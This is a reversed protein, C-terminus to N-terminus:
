RAVIVKAHRIVKDGLLYGTQYEEVITEPEVDPCDMQSIAEHFNVDLKCGKSEIAKVGKEELWKDFNKRVLEVGNIFPKLEGNSESVAPVHALVRQLDDVLPLLERITNELARSSSMVVEREKQKRFNEFDAARRLVEDRFKGVQDQQKALENELEVIRARLEETERNDAVSGAVPKEAPSNEESKSTIPVSVSGKEEAHERHHEKRESSKRIM